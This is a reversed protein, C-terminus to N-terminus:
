SGTDRPAPMPWPGRGRRGCGPGTSKTPPLAPGAARRLERRTIGADATNLTKYLSSALAAPSDLNLYPYLFRTGALQDMNGKLLEAYYAVVPCNYHNDSTGEDLNHTLGPYFLLDLGAEMLELMHGHM